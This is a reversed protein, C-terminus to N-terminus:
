FYAIFLQKTDENTVKKKHKTLRNESENQMRILKMQQKM